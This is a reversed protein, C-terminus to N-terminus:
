AEAEFEPSAASNYIILPHPPKLSRVEKLLTYGNENLKIDKPVSIGKCLVLNLLFAVSWVIVKLVQVLCDPQSETKNANQTDSDSM